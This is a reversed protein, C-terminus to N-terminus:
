ASNWLASGYSFVFVLFKRGRDGGAPCILANWRGREKEGTTLDIAPYPGAMAWVVLPIAPVERRLEDM